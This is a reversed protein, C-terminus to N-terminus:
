SLCAASGALVRAATCCPQVAPSCGLAVVWRWGLGGEQSLPPHAFLPPLVTCASQNDKKNLTPAAGVVRLMISVWAARDNMESSGRGM